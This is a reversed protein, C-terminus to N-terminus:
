DVVIPCLCHPHAVRPQVLKRYSAERTYGGLRRRSVRALACSDVGGESVRESSPLRVYHTPYARVQVCSVHRPETADAGHQAASFEVEATRPLHYWCM